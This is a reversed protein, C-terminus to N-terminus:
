YRIMLDDENLVKFKWGKSDCYKMAAKWKAENIKWEVLADIYNRFQKPAKTKNKPEIPPVMKSKPKVEILFVKGGIKATFDVFYRHMDNDLPSLYWLVTEESSWWEVDPNNDLWKGLKTEWRSRFTINLPNGKYKGPNTPIYHTKTGKYGRAM